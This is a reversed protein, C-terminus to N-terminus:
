RVPRGQAEQAKEAEEKSKGQGSGYFIRLQLPKYELKWQLPVNNPKRLLMWVCIEYITRDLKDMFVLPASAGWFVIM